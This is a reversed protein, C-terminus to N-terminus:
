SLGAEMQEDTKRRRLGSVPPAVAEGEEGRLMQQALLTVQETDVEQACEHATPCSRHMCPRCSTSAGVVRHRARDLPAWRRRDSGCSVVVSPTALAAAIHSIGTDNSVVLRAQVILAALAGLETKGCLDLAPRRMAYRVSRVLDAEGASGTLVIKWGEDALRDAVEAFRQPLWRRSQLQAGPHVCVYSGPAPLASCSRQLARFDVDTLPFELQRGQAPVGLFEMLRLYRLIEHEGEDWPAFHQPDPCFQGPVFFGANREAGLLMTLPNSLSGSGHMQIALDFHHRQAQALFNPIAAVQVPQEPFSPFGPFILLEDIYKNFRKVFGSAWPLGVLTIHAHPAVSRLARLAPVACLMDGLQLARFVAIKRPSQLAPRTRTVSALRDANM